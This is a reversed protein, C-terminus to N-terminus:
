RRAAPLTVFTAIPVSLFVMAVSGWLLSRSSVLPSEGSALRSADTASTAYIAIASGAFLVLRSSTPGLGAGAYGADVGARSRDSAADPAEPLM